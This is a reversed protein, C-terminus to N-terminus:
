ALLAIAVRSIVEESFRRLEVELLKQKCEDFPKDFVLENVKNLLDRELPAFVTLYKASSM